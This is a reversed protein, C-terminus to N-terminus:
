GMQAVLRGNEDLSGVHQNIEICIDRLLHSTWFQEFLHVYSPVENHERTLGTCEEIFFIPEMDYTQHNKSWTMNWYSFKINEM